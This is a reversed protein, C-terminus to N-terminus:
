LMYFIYFVLHLFVCRRRFEFSATDLLVFWAGNLFLAGYLTQLEYYMIIRHNQEKSPLLSMPIFGSVLCNLPKDAQLFAKQEETMDDINQGENSANNWTSNSWFQKGALNAM